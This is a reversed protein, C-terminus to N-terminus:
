GKQIYDIMPKQRVRRQRKHCAPLTQAPGNSAREAPGSKQPLPERLHERGRALWRGPPTTFPTARRNGPRTTPTFLRAGCRRRKESSLKRSSKARATTSISPRSVCNTTPATFKEAPFGGRTM